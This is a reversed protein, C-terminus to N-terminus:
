RFTLSFRASLKPISTHVHVLIFMIYIQVANLICTRICLTYWLNFFFLFSVAPPCATYTCTQVLWYKRSCLRLLWGQRREGDPRRAQAQQSLGHHLHRAGRGAGAAVLVAGARLRAALPVPLAPAVREVVCLVPVYVLRWRFPYLLRLVSQLVSCDQTFETCFCTSIRQVEVCVAIKELFYSLFVLYTCM